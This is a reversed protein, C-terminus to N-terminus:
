GEREKLRLRLGLGLRLGEWRGRTPLVVVLVLVVAVALVSTPLQNPVNAIPCPVCGCDRVVVDGVIGISVGPM